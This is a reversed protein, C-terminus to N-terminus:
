TRSRSHSAACVTHIQGSREGEIANAEGSATAVGLEVARQHDRKASASTSTRPPSRTPMGPGSAGSRSGCRSRSSPRPSRARGSALAGLRGGANAGEAARGLEHHQRSRHLGIASIWRVCRAARPAVARVAVHHLDDIRGLLGERIRAADLEDLGSPPPVM